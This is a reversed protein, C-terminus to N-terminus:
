VAIALESLPENPKVLDLETLERFCAVTRTKPLKISAIRIGPDTEMIGGYKEVISRICSIYLVHLRVKEDTSLSPIKWFDKNM